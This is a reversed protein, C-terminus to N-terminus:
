KRTREFRDYCSDLRNTKLDCFVFGDRGKEGTCYPNDPKISGDADCVNEILECFDSDYPYTTCYEEPNDNRDYCSGPHSPLDCFPGGDRGKEGTCYPHNPNADCDVKAVANMGSSSSSVMTMITTIAILAVSVSVYKTM